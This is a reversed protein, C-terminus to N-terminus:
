NNQDRFLRTITDRATYLAEIADNEEDTAELGESSRDETMGILHDIELDIAKIIDNYKNM